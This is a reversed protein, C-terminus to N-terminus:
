RPRHSHFHFPMLFLKLGPIYMGGASTAIIQNAHSIIARVSEGQPSGSRIKAFAMPSSRALLDTLSNSFERFLTPDTPSLAQPDIVNFSLCAIPSVRHVLVHWSRSPCRSQPPQFVFLGATVFADLIQKSRAQDGTLLADANEFDSGKSGSELFNDSINPGQGAPKSKDLQRSYALHMHHLLRSRM